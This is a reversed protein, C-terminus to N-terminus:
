SQFRGDLFVSSLHWSLTFTGNHLANSSNSLGLADFTIEITM